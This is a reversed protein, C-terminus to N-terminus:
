CSRGFKGLSMSQCIRLSLFSILRQVESSFRGKSLYAGNSSVELMMGSCKCSRNALAALSLFGSSFCIILSVLIKNFNERPGIRIPNLNLQHYNFVVYIRSVCFWDILWWSPYGKGKCFLPSFIIDWISSLPIM